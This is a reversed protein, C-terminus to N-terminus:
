HFEKLTKDLSTSMNAIFDNLDKATTKADINPGPFYKVADKINGANIFDPIPTVAEYASIPGLIIYGDVLGALTLEKDKYAYTENKVPLAGMATGALTFGGQAGKPLTAILADLKGGVPYGLGNVGKKDNWPSHLYISFARSGIKNYIINGTRETNPIGAEKGKEAYLKNQYKTFAHDISTYILAKTGTSIFQKEIVKAMFVDPIGKSLVKKVVEPNTADKQSTLYQYEQQVNLGVIRFPKAGAPLSRNFKWAARFLDAYQKFGWIVMRDFLIQDVQKEDYRPAQLVRDIKAQDSALAYEIGLNRVGARYLDPILSAVFDVQQSIRGMEGLFVIEHAKFLGTVYQAPPLAKSDFSSKLTSIETASAAPQSLNKKPRFLGFPDVVFIFLVAIAVIITVNTTRREM